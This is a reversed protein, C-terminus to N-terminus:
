TQPAANNKSAPDPIVMLSFDPDPDANFDFNFLKLPVFDLATSPRPRECHLGPPESLISGQLTSLNTTSYMSYQITYQVNKSFSYWTSNRILLFFTPLTFLKKVCGYITRLLPFFLLESGFGCGSGAM